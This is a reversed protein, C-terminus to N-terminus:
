YTSRFSFSLQTALTDFASINSQVRERRLEVVPAFGFVDMQAFTATASLGIASDERREPGFLPRDFLSQRFDASFAIHANLIPQGLAYTARLRNTARAVAASDSASDAVSLDVRLFDKGGVPFSWEVGVETTTSTRLANDLRDLHELRGRLRLRQQDGLPFRLGAELALGTQSRNGGNWDFFLRTGIDSVTQRGAPRFRGQWGFTLRDASFDSNSLGPDISSAESGLRTRRGDYAVTIEKQATVTAPFRYTVTGGFHYETGSIPQAAPNVFIIGGIEIQNSTPANNANDTPSIGGRVSFAWPNRSRVYAYDRRIAAKAADTPALQGARRLWLQARTHKGASALAEALVRAALHRHAQSEAIDFAQRARSIAQETQGLAREARSLTILIEPDRPHRAALVTLVDHAARHQGYAMFVLSLRKATDIDLEASNPQQAAVALASLMWITFVALRCRVLKRFRDAM